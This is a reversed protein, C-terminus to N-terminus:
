LVPRYTKYKHTASLVNMKWKFALFGEIRKRTEDSAIEPLVIIERIISNTCQNATDGSSNTFLTPIAGTMSFSFIAFNTFFKPLTTNWTCATNTTTPEGNLYMGINTNYGNCFYDGYSSSAMYPYMLYGFDKYTIRKHVVFVHANAPISTSFIMRDDVGDSLIGPFGDGCDEIYQPMYDFVAQSLSRANGSRDGWLAVRGTNLTINPLYQADLWCYKDIYEVGFINSASGVVPKKARYRNSTPLNKKIDVGLIKSWKHAAYGFIKEITSADPITRGAVYECVDGIFSGYPGGGIVLDRNSQSVTVGTHVLKGDVYIKPVGADYVVLVMIFGTRASPFTYNAPACIVSPRHHYVNVANVGVAEGVGPQTAGNLKGQMGNACTGTNSDSCVSITQTPRVVWFAFGAPSFAPLIYSSHTLSYSGNFTAYKGATYPIYGGSYTYKRNNGSKDQIVSIANSVLTILDKASFDLWVDTKISTFDWPIEGSKETMDHILHGSVDSIINGRLTNDPSLSSRPGRMLSRKFVEFERIASM